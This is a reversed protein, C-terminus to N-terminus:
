RNFKDCNQKLYKLYHEVYITPIIAGVGSLKGVDYYPSVSNKDIQVEDDLFDYPFLGIM